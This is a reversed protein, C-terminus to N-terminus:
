SDIKKKMMHSVVEFGSHLYLEMAAANFAFVHLGISSYGYGKALGEIKNMAERGYGRGQFGPFVELAFLYAQRKTPDVDGFWAYGIKQGEAHLWFMHSNKTNAGDGLLSLTERRSKEFAEERTWRGARISEEAYMSIVRSLYDEFDSQEIRALSIM